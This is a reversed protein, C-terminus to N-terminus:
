DVTLIMPKLVHEVNIQIDNKYSLNDYAFDNVNRESSM